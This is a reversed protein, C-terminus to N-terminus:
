AHEAVEPRHAALLARSDLKGNVTVPLRDVLRIDRPVMAQPLAEHLAHAVRAHDLVTQEVPQVFLVIDVVRGNEKVPLCACKYVGEVDQAAREIEDLEIRNGNWKVQRDIRGLITLHGKADVKGFDGTRYTRVGDRQIFARNAPHDQPIYGCVVQPGSLEVEGPEGAAVEGGDEDVIRMHTPSLVPGLPLLDPAEMDQTTLTHIHTVCTVESPGYAHRIDAKPFRRALERVLDRQVVEGGVFFCRLYPLRRADFEPDVCMIQLLSPTAFWSRAGVDSMTATLAKLNNRPVVNNRHDLLFVPRGLSLVPWLDLMGMDFSLSAHNVHASQSALLTRGPLTDLMPVYWSCFAAFNARTVPLGKPEGTSGSTFVIYLFTEEDIEPLPSLGSSVPAIDSLMVQAVGDIAPTPRACLARSAGATQAIRAVRDAPNSQDVFVYPQGEFMCALMAAVGDTEKHGCILLPTADKRGSLWRRVAEVRAALAGFTMIQGDEVLAPADPSRSM